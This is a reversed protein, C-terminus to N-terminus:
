RAVVTAMSVAKTGGQGVPTQPQSLTLLWPKSCAPLYLYICTFIPVCASVPLYVPIFMWPQLPLTPFHNLLSTLYAFGSPKVSVVICM